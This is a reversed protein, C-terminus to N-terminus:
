TFPSTTRYGKKSPKRLASRLPMMHTGGGIPLMTAEYDHGDVTGGVKVPKGTGFFRASNPMQVCPWGSNSDAIITATFIVDIPQGEPRTASTM